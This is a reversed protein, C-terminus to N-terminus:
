RAEVRRPGTALPGALDEQKRFVAWVPLHDSIELAEDLTLGYDQQLNLVGARGTYEVTARRDFVLNDYTRTGRTNTPAGSIACFIGPLIGLEGLHYEDANLDGLLIVDDEGSADRQVALFVDDLANLETEVEDPDTHINILTFTFPRSDAAGRVRFSAVLPERHLRDGRDYATYVSRPLVEIRDTDYLYAYQEKSSTRGLREGIIFNFRSGDANIQRVFDPVVSQDASRIEQIAVVDFRRIVRALVDVVEPKDLKSVGFVQINFSAISITDPGKGVHSPEADSVGRDDGTHASDPLWRDLECGAAALSGALAILPLLRRFGDRM